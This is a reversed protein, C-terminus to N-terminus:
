DIHVPLSKLIFAIGAIICLIIGSWYRVYAVGTPGNWGNRASSPREGKIVRYLFYAVVLFVIGLLLHM